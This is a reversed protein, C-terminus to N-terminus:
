LTAMAAKVIQATRPGIKEHLLIIKGGKNAKRQQYGLENSLIPSYVSLKLPYSGGLRMM